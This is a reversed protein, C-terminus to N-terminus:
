KRGMDAVEFPLKPDGIEPSHFDGTPRNSGTIRVIDGGTLQGEVQAVPYSVDV